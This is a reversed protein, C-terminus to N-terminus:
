PAGTVMIAGVFRISPFTRKLLKSYFNTMVSGDEYRISSGPKLAQLPAAIWEANGDRLVEIYTFQNADLTSLVKGAYPLDDASPPNEPMLMERAQQPTPHGPPPEAQACFTVLTGCLLAALLRRRPAIRLADLPFDRAM